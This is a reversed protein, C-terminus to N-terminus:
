FSFILFELQPMLNYLILDCVLVDTAYFIGFGGMVCAVGNGRAEARQLLQVREPPVYDGEGEEIFPSLHPPLVVGVM